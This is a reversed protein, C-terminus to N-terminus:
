GQLNERETLHNKTTGADGTRWWWVRGVSAQMAESLDYVESSIVRRLLSFM